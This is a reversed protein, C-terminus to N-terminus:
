EYSVICNNLVLILDYQGYIFKVQNDVDVFLYGSVGNMSIYKVGTYEFKDGNDKNKIFIKM